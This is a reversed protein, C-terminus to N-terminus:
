YGIIIYRKFIYKIIAMYEYLSANISNISRVDPIFSYININKEVKQYFTSVQFGHSNLLLSMRLTHKPSTVILVKQDSNSINFTNKLNFVTEYSNKSFNDYLTNKYTIINELTSAESIGDDNLVGGSILLPKNLNKAFFEGQSARLVSRSSPHWKLQADKFIGATPVLVLLINDNKNYRNADTRLPLEIMQSFLPTLLLYFVMCIIKLYFYLKERKVIILILILSWFIPLPFYPIKFLIDKM